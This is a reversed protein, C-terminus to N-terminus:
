HETQVTKADNAVSLYVDPTVFAYIMVVHGQVGMGLMKCHRSTQAPSECCIERKLFAVQGEM